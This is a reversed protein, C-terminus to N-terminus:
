KNSKLKSKVTRVGERTLDVGLRGLHYASYVVAAGVVVVAVKDGITMENEM